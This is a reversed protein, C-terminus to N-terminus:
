KGVEKTLYSIQKRQDSKLAPMTPMVDIFEPDPLRFGADYLARAYALCADAERPQMGDPPVLVYVFRDRDWHMARVADYRTEYPVRDAARGDALHFAMYCGYSGAVAALTVADAMRRADDSWLPKDM